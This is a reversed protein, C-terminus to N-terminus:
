VWVIHDSGLQCGAEVSAEGCCGKEETIGRFHTESTEPSISVDKGKQFLLWSESKIRNGIM